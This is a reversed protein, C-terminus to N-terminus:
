HNEPISDLQQEESQQENLIKSQSNEEEMVQKLKEKAAPLIDDTLKYNDIISQLTSKAQFFDKQAEYVDALLLFCKAVWYDSSPKQKIVKWSQDEASKLDNQKFFIEAVYYGSEAASKGSTSKWVTTFEAQAKNWDSKSYASKALYFHAETQD